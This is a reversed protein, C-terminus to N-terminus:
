IHILSLIFPAFTAVTGFYNVEMVRRIADLDEACETLTGVSVGANAIIIDPVGIRAM